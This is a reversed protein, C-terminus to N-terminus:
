SSAEEVPLPGVQGDDAPAKESPTEGALPKYFLHYERISLNSSRLKTALEAAIRRMVQFGIHPYDDCLRLLRSRPIRIVQADTRCRVSATRQAADEVLTVEGFTSNPGMVAVAIPSEADSRPELVIEVAGQALLYVADGPDGERMIYDGAIYRREECIMLILDLYSEKLGQFLDSRKLTRKIEELHM